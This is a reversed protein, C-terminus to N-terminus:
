PKPNVWLGRVLEKEHNMNLIRYPLGLFSSSLPRHTPYRDKSPGVLRSMNSVPHKRPELVELM